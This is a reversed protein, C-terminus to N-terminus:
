GVIQAVIEDVSAGDHGSSGGRGGEIDPESGDVSRFLSPMDIGTLKHDGNPSMDAILDDIALPKGKADLMPTLKDGDKTMPAFNDGDGKHLFPKLKDVAVSLLDPHIRGKAAKGVVEHLEIDTLKSSANAYKSSLDDFGSLKEDASKKYDAFSKEVELRRSKEESLLGLVSELDSAKPRNKKETIVEANKAQLKAISDTSEALEGELSAIKQQMEETTM